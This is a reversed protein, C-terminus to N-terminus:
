GHNACGSNRPLRSPGSPTVVIDMLEQFLKIERTTMFGGGVGAGIRLDSGSNNDIKNEDICVEENSQAKSLSTCLRKRPRNAERIERKKEQGED